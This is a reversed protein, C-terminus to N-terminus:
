SLRQLQLRATLDICLDLTDRNQALSDRCFASLAPQRFATSRVHSLDAKCGDSVLVQGPAAQQVFGPLEFGAAAHLELMPNPDGLALETQGPNAVFSQRSVSRLQRCQKRQAIRPHCSAIQKVMLNAAKKSVRVM